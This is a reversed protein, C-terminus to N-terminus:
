NEEPIHFAETVGVVIPEVYRPEVCLADGWWLADDATHEELWERVQEDRPHLLVITGHNAIRVPPTM